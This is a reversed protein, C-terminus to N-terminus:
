GWQGGRCPPKENEGMRGRAERQRKHWCEYCLPATEGNELLIYGEVQCEDLCDYCTRIEYRALPDDFGTQTM